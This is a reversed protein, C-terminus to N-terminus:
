HFLAIDRHRNILKGGTVGCWWRTGADHTWRDTFADHTWRSPQDYRTGGPDFVLLDHESVAMVVVIHSLVASDEGDLRVQALPFRGAETWRRLDEFTGQRRVFLRWPKGSTNYGHSAGHVMRRMEKTGSGTRVIPEAATTGLAV